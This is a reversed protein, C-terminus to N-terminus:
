EPMLRSPRLVGANWVGLGLFRHDPAYLRLTQTEASADVSEPKALAAGIQHPAWEPLPVCQGHALSRAAHAQLAIAPIEQLLTDAPLLCADRQELTCQALQELTLAQGVHYPGSATRRLASLYAGCGLAAGIDQALVRIYTGKSVQLSVTLEEGHWALQQLAYVRITRTPRDIEIGARAYRYLPQGQHKLASHMPPAQQQAGVFGQLVQQVQLADGEYPRGPEIVGEADGTSSTYGLRLQAQYTKPAELVVGSFRTAQGLCVPLLGSALPDLTGTHGAKLAQFLYRVRQLAANSSIGLPKDLLFVGSVARRKIRVPPSAEPSPLTIPMRPLPKM